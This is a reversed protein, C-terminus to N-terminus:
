RGLVRFDAARRLVNGYGETAFVTPSVADARYGVVVPRTVLPIMQADRDVAACLERLAVPRGPGEPAALATDVAATLGADPAMFGINFQAQEPKWWQAVMGADAYGAFWSLAADFRAPVEGYVAGAWSGEDLQQITVRVGIRALNQQIVQAVAPAPETSFATLTFSLDTAGAEALLRRAEDLDATASPLAAPDCADPLGAPTVGTPTGLGATAVAAIQTRDMAINVATRVRPDAFKGGPANNNLMLYYFDTTAQPLAVVGRVGALLQPADVNGLVAFDASQNQLAAIRTSEQPVISVIIKDAAPRAPAWYGPRRAFRWLVDQRHFEAVFPGTGLMTTAPDVTGAAIERMPLVAAPTNALAALFPTYPRDLVVRVTRDDVAAVSAVPGVQTAWVGPGALLRELSGVVDAADMPRGNAFTVGERLHFVYETPSPTEWSVALGPEIRFGPGIVVLTEYVLSMLQWSVAVDALQPDLGSAAGTDIPIQLELVGGPPAAPDAIALLGPAVPTVTPAVVPAACASGLVAAAAVLVTGIRRM